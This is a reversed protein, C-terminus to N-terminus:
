YSIKCLFIVASYISFYKSLMFLFSPLFAKASLNIVPLFVAVIYMGTGSAMGIAIAAFIYGTDKSDKVATRFRIISLAGVLSFARAINSGIIMMIISTTVALVFITHTFTQNYTVGRHTKTYIFAVPLMLVVPLGFNVIVDYITFVSRMSPYSILAEYFQEFNM